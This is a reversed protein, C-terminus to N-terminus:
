VAHPYRVAPTPVDGTSVPLESRLQHSAVQLELEDIKADDRVVRTAREADHQTLAETADRIAVEALGGMEAILARLQDIDADFAKLTHGETSTM